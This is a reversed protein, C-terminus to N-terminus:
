GTAEEDEEEDKPVSVKRTKMNCDMLGAYRGWAIMTEFTKEPNDYPLATAIDSVIRDADVEDYEDLLALIIHFLRLKFVQEAFITRRGQRDSAIFRRGLETLKVEHRPTDVLELIEAAKVIAITDGFERGIEDSIEYINSLEPTDHLISLLGLIQGVPVNPISEMRSRARSIPAGAVPAEPPLDPLAMTTICEHIVGVLRQFEASKSDRPYPLPNDLALGIRGPRPFVVVIRTAMEVAEEINHTVMFISSLASDSGRWLGILEQRLNEATLVDLASFAEDLCLLRPRSVLARAIGVRQRMGGSLERPYAEHYNGLGIIEIARDIAEAREARPMRRSMLGVAVNQEVTLWPYLAFTQFVVSADRNIGHLPEGGALVRGFSPEVLGTLCRLITSKGSGSQGLLAVLEGPNVALDINDLVKLERGGASGYSKSVACLQAIPATADTM